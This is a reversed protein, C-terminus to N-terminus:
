MLAQGEAYRLIWRGLLHLKGGIRAGEPAAPM